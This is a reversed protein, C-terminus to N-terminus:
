SFLDLMTALKRETEQWEANEQSEKLLGGGAYLTATNSFLQMCRLTVFLHAENFMVPGSYGSYYMRNHREASLLISKAAETPWGCVAPTPHLSGVLNQHTVDARVNMTFDTCLHLLNAAPRVYTDGQTLKGPIQQLKERIYDAVWRQERRDKDSWEEPLLPADAMKGMTGALAMSHWEPHTGELLIEPTAMLWTGWPFPLQVLSVFSHPYAICAREFLQEHQMRNFEDHFQLQMCRSLVVKDVAGKDLQEKCSLFAQHYNARENVEVARYDLPSHFAQQSQEWTRHHEMPIFWLPSLDSVQFPAFIYGSTRPVEEISSFRLPDTECQVEHILTTNPLRYRVSTPM